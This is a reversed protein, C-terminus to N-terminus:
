LDKFYLKTTCDVFGLDADNTTATYASYCMILMQWHENYPVSYGAGTRVPPYLLEKNIPIYTKVFRKPRGIWSTGDAQSVSATGAAQTGTQSAAGTGFGPMKL